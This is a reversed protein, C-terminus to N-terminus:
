KEDKKEYTVKSVKEFDSAKGYKKECAKYGIGYFIWGSIGGIVIGGLIFFIIGFFVAIIGTM